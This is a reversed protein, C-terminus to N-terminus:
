KFMLKASDYKESKIIDECLDFLKKKNKDTLDSFMELLVFADAGYKSVFHNKIMDDTVYGSKEDDSIAFLYEPSVDFYSAMKFITDRPINEVNGKEYKLVASRCIGLLTGLEAQTMGAKERLYKIREGTTM